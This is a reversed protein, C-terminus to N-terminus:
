EVQAGLWWHRASQQERRRLAIRKGDASVTALDLDPVGLPALFDPRQRAMRRPSAAEGPVLRDERRTRAVPRNEVAVNARGLVREPREGAVPLLHAAKAPVDRVALKRAAAVVVLQEDPFAKVAALRQPLKLLVAGGDLGDSPARVLTPNESRAASRGVTPDAEPICQRARLEARDVRTRLHAALFM